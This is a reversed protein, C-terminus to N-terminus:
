AVDPLSIFKNCGYFLRCSFNDRDPPLFQLVFLEPSDELESCTVYRLRIREDIFLNDVPSAGALFTVETLLVDYVFTFNGFLPSFDDIPLEGSLFLHMLTGVHDLYFAEANFLTSFYCLLEYPWNIIEASIPM